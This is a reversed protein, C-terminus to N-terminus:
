LTSCLHCVCLLLHLQLSSGRSIERIRIFASCPAFYKICFHQFPTQGSLIFCWVLGHVTFHQYSLSPNSCINNKAYASRLFVNGQKKFPSLLPPAKLFKLMLM